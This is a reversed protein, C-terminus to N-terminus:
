VCVFWSCFTINVWGVGAKEEEEEEEERKM